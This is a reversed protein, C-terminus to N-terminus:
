DPMSGCSQACCEQAGCETFWGGSVILKEIHERRRKGAVSYRGGRGKLILSMRRCTEDLDDNILVYHFDRWKGIDERAESFRRALVEPRDSNRGQLRRKLEARSPPLLFVSEAEPMARRVQAAGQWDIELIVRRGSALKAEVESRSTGYRNGFVEAHELFGDCDRIADFEADRVFFYDREHRESDRAPRTTHSVALSVGPVSKVLRRVITTKGTGSPASVVFLRSTM